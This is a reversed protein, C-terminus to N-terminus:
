RSMINPVGNVPMDAAHGALCGAWFDDGHDGKISEANLRINGATTVTKKVAHLSRRIDSNEPIRFLKNEFKRKFSFALDQKIRNTFLVGEVRHAGYRRKADEVPKEGMGTQDMVYRVPKYEAEIRDMEDDQEQFSADILAVRERLWEVDGVKETVWFITANYRLAIDNGVYFIGKPNAFEPLGAEHHECPRILKWPMFAEEDDAPQCCYEQLFISEDGCSRREEDLWAEREEKTTKRKFIKDVLGQEIATYITTTHVSFVPERGIEKDKKADNIFQAFLGNKSRYTSLIRADFGWSICPKAAAWMKFQDEHWDFEDLVAKGGKSRFQRPNSSLGIIRSMNKFRIMTTTVGFKPDIIDYDIGVIGLFKEYIRAWMECYLIYEKAASEDASSFWISIGPKNKAERVDEHSQVYTAGIRRSKEWIKRRSKDKLWAIQYPLFHPM